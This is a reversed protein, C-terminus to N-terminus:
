PSPMNYKPNSKIESIKNFLTFLDSEIQRNTKHIAEIFEKQRIQAANKKLTKEYRFEVYSVEKNCTHAYASISIDNLYDPNFKSKLQLIKKLMQNATMSYRTGSPKMTYLGNWHGHPENLMESRLDDIEELLKVEEPNM